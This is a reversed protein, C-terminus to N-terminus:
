IMVRVTRFMKVRRARSSSRVAKKHGVCYLHFPHNERGILSLDPCSTSRNKGWAQQYNRSPPLNHLHASGMCSKWFSPPRFWSISWIQPSTTNNKHVFLSSTCLGLIMRDEYISAKTSHFTFDSADWTAISTLSRREVRYLGVKLNYFWM